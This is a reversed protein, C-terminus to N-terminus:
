RILVLKKSKEFGNDTTIKYIYVGSAFGCADWECKYNGPTLKESVLTTVEQGLLNYIKLTVFETKPISFEIATSPNFPNPYNQNLVFGKPLKGSNKQEINTVIELYQSLRIPNIRGELWQGGSIRGEYAFSGKKLFHYAYYSINLSDSSINPNFLEIFGMNVPEGCLLCNWFGWTPNHIVYPGDPIPATPLSDIISTM